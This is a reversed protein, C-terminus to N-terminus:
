FLEDFCDEDEVPDILSLNDRFYELAIIENWFEKYKDYDEIREIAKEIIDLPINDIFIEDCLNSNSIMKYSLELVMKIDSEEKDIEDKISSLNKLFANENLTFKYDM